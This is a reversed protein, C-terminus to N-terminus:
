NILLNSSYITHFLKGLKPLPMRFLDFKITPGTNWTLYGDHAICLCNFVHWIGFWHWAQNWLILFLCFCSILSCSWNQFSCYLAKYYSFFHRFLYMWICISTRRGIVFIIRLMVNEEVHGLKMKSMTKSLREREREREWNM